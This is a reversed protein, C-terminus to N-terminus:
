KEEEPTKEGTQAEPEQAAEENPTEEVMTVESSDAKAESVSDGDSTIAPTAEASQKVEKEGGADSQSGSADTHSANRALTSRAPKKPKRPPKQAAQKTIRLFGDSLIAGKKLWENIKEQNLIVEKPETLPNYTGLAELYEGTRKKREDVAVIRYFPRKKAGIRM